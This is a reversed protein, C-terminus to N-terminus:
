CILKNLNNNEGLESTNIYSDLNLNDIKFNAFATNIDGFRLRIEGNINSSDIKGKIGAFTAGGKRFVVESDLNAKKLRTDSINNLDISLWRYFDRINDSELAASGEFISFKNKFLGDFKINTNGPFTANGSNLFYDNQEKNIEISLNRIPYELFKSTGISFIFKGSHKEWYSIDNNKIESNKNKYNKNIKNVQQIFSDLDVNNSSLAIDIKPKIGNNGSLAGTFSLDEMNGKINFISYFLDNNKFNLSLDGTLKTKKDLLNLYKLSSNSFINNINKYNLDLQGELNPFYKSYSINLNAGIEIDNNNITLKALWIDEKNKNFSSNLLYQNGNISLSGDLINVTQSTKIAINEFGIKTINNYIITGKTINYENVKIDPYKIQNSKLYKENIVEDVQDKNSINKELVWNPKQNSINLLNITLNDIVIKEIEVKGKILSLFSLKAIISDSRLFNNIVGSKDDVLSIDHVKVQPSPYIKLEIDGRIHATKGTNEELM